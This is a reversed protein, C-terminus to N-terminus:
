LSQMNTFKHTKGLNIAFKARRRTVSDNELGSVKPHLSHVTYEYKAQTWISVTLTIFNFMCEERKCYSLTFAKPTM